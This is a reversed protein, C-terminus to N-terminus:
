LDDRRVWRGLIAGAEEPNAKVLEGIQQAIKRSRIETEDLEVGALTSEMEEAEGVLEDDSPLRPPVGALEEVSPLVEQQSAKRVMFLMFGIAILGLAGLGVPKQWGADAFIVGVGTPTPPGPPPELLSADPIMTAVVTGESESTQILPEVSQQIQALQQAVIPALAADDPEGQAQPNMGRYIQVFFSRPVNIAVNIRNTAHGTMTTQSRLILPKEGFESMERTITERTGTAGSGAIDLGTNPLVGPEGADRVDYRAIEETEQRTIPEAKEYQFEEQAKTAVRDIQVSVAVRVGPIYALHESIKRTHYEELSQVLELAETPLMQNSDDVKLKQGDVIVSVNTPPMEAVAGSILAAVAEVLQKRDVRGQTQITVSASPKVYNSGFGKYRPIDLVVDASRVGKMKRVIGALVKQKAILFAQQNQQDSTWPSQAVLFMDFAASWDEGMLDGEVLALIAEHEQSKPVRIQNGEKEADIGMAQLRAMVENSRNGVFQTIPVTEPESVYALMLGVVLVGLVILTGILWKASPSLGELQTQIQLWTRKIFEM